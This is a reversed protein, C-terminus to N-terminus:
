VLKGDDRIANDRYRMAELANACQLALRALQTITHGDLEHLKGNMEARQADEALRRLESLQDHTVHTEVGLYAAAGLPNSPSETGGSCPVM